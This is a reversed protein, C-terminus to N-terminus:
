EQKEMDFLYDSIANIVLRAEQPLLFISSWYNGAVRISLALGNNYKSMSDKEIKIKFDKRMYGDDKISEQETKRKKRIRKAAGTSIAIKKVM